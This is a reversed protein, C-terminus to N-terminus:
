IVAKMGKRKKKKRGEVIERVFPSEDNALMALQGKDKTTRAVEARVLFDKDRCLRDLAYGTAAAICRNTFTESTALQELDKESLRNEM